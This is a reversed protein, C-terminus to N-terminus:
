QKRNGVGDCTVIYSQQLWQPNRQMRDIQAVEPCAHANTDIAAARYTQEKDPCQAGPASFEDLCGVGKWMAELCRAGGPGVIDSKDVDITLRLVPPGNINGEFGCALIGGDLGGQASHTGSSPNHDHANRAVVAGREPCSETTFLTEGDDHRSPHLLPVHVHSYIKDVTTLDIERAHDCRAKREALTRLCEGLQYTPRTQLDHDLGGISQTVSQMTRRDCLNIRHRIPQPRPDLDSGPPSYGTRLDWQLPLLHYDSRGDDEGATLADAHHDCRFVM